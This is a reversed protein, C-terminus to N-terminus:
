KTQTTNTSSPTKEPKATGQWEIKINERIVDEALKVAADYQGVKIYKSVMGTAKQAINKEYSDAYPLVVPALETCTDDLQFIAKYLEVFQMGPKLLELVMKSIQQARTETMTGDTLKTKILEVVALEIEERITDPNMSNTNGLLFYTDLISFPIIPYM